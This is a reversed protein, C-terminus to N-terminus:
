LVFVSIAYFATLGGNLAGNVDCKCRQGIVSEGDCMVCGELSM